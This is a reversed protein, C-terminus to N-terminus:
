DPILLNLFASCAMSNFQFVFREKFTILVIIYISLYISVNIYIDIYRYIYLYMYARFVNLYFKIREVKSLRPCYNRM